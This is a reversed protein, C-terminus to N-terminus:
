ALSSVLRNAASQCWSSPGKTGPRSADFGPEAGQLARAIQEELARSGRETLMEELAPSRLRLAEIAGVGTAVLPVLRALWPRQMGLESAVKSGCLKWVLGDHLPRLSLAQLAALPTGAGTVFARRLADALVLSDEDPGDITFRVLAEYREAISEDDMVSLLDDDVGMLYAAYRFLHMVAASEEGSFRYGLARCGRLVMSSFELATIAMDAQNIPAGWVADQWRGSGRIMRRVQAHMLRVRVAIKLGEGQRRLGGHRSTEVVYRGTEALRRPARESLGGTFTLPKIAAASHYGSMLSYASLTLASGFSARRYVRAGLDCRALDVWDPVSDIRAFLSRLSEPSDPVAQVGQALARELMARGASPGLAAFSAVVEDALPDSRMLAHALKDALPGFRAQAEDFNRLRTPRRTKEPITQTPSM